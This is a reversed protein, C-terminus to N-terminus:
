SRNNIRGSKVKRSFSEFSELDILKNSRYFTEQHLRKLLTRLYYAIHIPFRYLILLKSELIIFYSKRTKIKM